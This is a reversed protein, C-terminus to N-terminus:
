SPEDMEAEAWDQVLAMWHQRNDLDVRLVDDDERGKVISMMRSGMKETDDYTLAKIARALRTLPTEAM